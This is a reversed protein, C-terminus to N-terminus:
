PILNMSIGSALVDPSTSSSVRITKNNLKMRQFVLPLVGFTVYSSIFGPIAYNLGFTTPNDYTEIYSFGTFILYCVTGSIVGRLIRKFYSTKWWGSVLKKSSLHSGCVTGFNFFIWASQNYSYNGGIDQDFDCHKYANKIWRIPTENFQPVNASLANIFLLFAMCSIFWYVKIKRNKNNYYTSSVSIKSIYVNLNLYCVMYIFGLGFTVGIQHPWNEGLYMECFSILFVWFALSGYLFRRLVVKTEDVLEIIISLYFIFGFLIGESPFGYGDDCNLGRVSTDEWYPRPETFLIAVASYVYLMHSSIICIKLAIVSEVINFIFPLVVMLYYHTGSRAVWKSFETLRHSEWDQLRTLSNGENDALKDRFMYELPMLICFLAVAFGTAKFYTRHKFVEYDM